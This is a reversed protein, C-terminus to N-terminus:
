LATKQNEYKASKKRNEKRWLPQINKYNFCAQQDESLSLNFLSCPKIHDMEWGGKGYNDWTMGESFLSELHSKLEDVSCGILELTNASKAKGELALSIRRRINAEIRYSHDSNYRERRYKARRKRLREKNAKEYQRQYEAMKEKNQERYKEGYELLRTKNERYYKKENGKRASLRKAFVDPALWSEGQAATKSYGWFVLGDERQEGRKLVRLEKPPRNDKM